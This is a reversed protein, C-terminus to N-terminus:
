NKFRHLTSDRDVETKRHQEFIQTDVDIDENQYKALFTKLALGANNKTEALEYILAIKARGAPIMEPLQIQLQHNSPIHTEMEYYAHM